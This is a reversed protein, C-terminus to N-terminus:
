RGKLNLWVYYALVGNAAGDIHSSHVEGEFVHEAGVWMLAIAVYLASWCLVGNLWKWANRM